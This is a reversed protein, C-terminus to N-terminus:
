CGSTNNNENEIKRKIWNLDESSEYLYHKPNNEDWTLKIELKDTNKNTM